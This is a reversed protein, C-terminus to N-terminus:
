YRYHNKSLRVLFNTTKLASEDIGEGTGDERFPSPNSFLNSMSMVGHWVRRKDVTKAYWVLPKQAKLRFAM